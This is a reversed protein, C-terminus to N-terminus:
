LGRMELHQLLTKEVRTRDTEFVTMLRKRDQNTLAELLHREQDARRAGPSINIPAVSRYRDTLRLFRKVEKAIAKRPSLEFIAEYFARHEMVFDVGSGQKLAREMGEVHVRLGALEKKGPWKISELLESELLHRIRYLQRAEVSSLNSIFFGRHPDHLVIGEATLLKLAERVPVRSVGFRKALDTQGLHVGPSLIGQAILDRVNEVIRIPSGPSTSRTEDPVPLSEM